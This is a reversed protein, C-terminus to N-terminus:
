RLIVLKKVSDGIVRTGNKLKWNTLANVKSEAKLKKLKGFLLEIPLLSPTYQHLFVYVRDITKLYDLM